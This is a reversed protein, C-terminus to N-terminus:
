LGVLRDLNKQVALRAAPKHSLSSVVSFQGSKQRRIFDLFSGTNGPSQRVVDILCALFLIAFVLNRIQGIQLRLAM